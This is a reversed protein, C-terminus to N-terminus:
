RDMGPLDGEHTHCLHPDAAPPWSPYPAKREIGTEISYFGNSVRMIIDFGPNPERVAAGPASHLFDGVHRRVFQDIGYLTEAACDYHGADVLYKAQAVAFQLVLREWGYRINSNKITQQLNSLKFDVFGVTGPKEHAAFQTLDLAFGVTNISHHPGTSNLPDPTCSNTVEFLTNGESFQTEVASHDNSQFGVHDAPCGTDSGLEPTTKAATVVEIGTTNDVQEATSAIVIFGTGSAGTSGCMYSPIIRSDSLGPCVQKLPLPQAGSGNPAAGCNPGRPDAPVICEQETITALAPIGGTNGRILTTMTGDGLIDCPTNFCNSAYTTGTKYGQQLVAVSTPQVGPLQPNSLSASPKSFGNTPVTTGWFLALMGSESSTTYTDQITALVYLSGAQQGAAIKGWTLGCDWFCGQPLGSTPRAYVSATGYGTSTPPLMWITGDSVAILLSGDIPSIAISVPVYNSGIPFNAQTVLAKAAAPFTNPYGLGAAIATQPYVFVVPAGPAATYTDGVLVILDGAQIGNAFAGPSVAADAITHIHAGGALGPDTAVNDMLVPYLFGEGQEFVFVGLANYCIYSFYGAGLINGSGDVGLGNTNNPGCEQSHTNSLDVSPTYAPGPLSYLDGYTSNSGILDTYGSVTNQRFALASVAPNTPGSPEPSPSLPTAGLTPAAPTGGITVAYVAAGLPQPPLTTSNGTTAGFAITVPALQAAFGGEALALFTILGAAIKFALSGSSRIFRTM